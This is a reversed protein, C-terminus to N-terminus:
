EQFTKCYYTTFICYAACLKTFNHLIKDSKQGLKYTPSIRVISLIKSFNGFEVLSDTYM